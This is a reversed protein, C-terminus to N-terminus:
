YWSLCHHVAFCLQVFEDMSIIQIGTPADIGRMIMDDELILWNAATNKMAQRILAPHSAAYCGDNILLVHDQPEIFALARNFASHSAPSQSIIHLQM